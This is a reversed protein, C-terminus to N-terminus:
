RLFVKQMSKMDKTIKTTIEEKNLIAKLLNKTGKTIKM